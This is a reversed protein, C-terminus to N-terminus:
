HVGGRDGGRALELDADLPEEVGRARVDEGDPRIRLEDGFPPAVVRDDLLHVDAGAAGVSEPGAHADDLALETLDLWGRAEHLRELVMQLRELELIETLLRLQGLRHAEVGGLLPVHRHLVADLLTRLRPEHADVRHELLDSRLPGSGFVISARHANGRPRIRARGLQLARIAAIQDAHVARALVVELVDADLDRLAPQRHEGAHGARALAREH